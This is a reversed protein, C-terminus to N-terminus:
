VYEIKLLENLNNFTMKIGEEFGMKILIELNALSDLQLTANINTIGNNETFFNTWLSQPLKTDIIGNEDCFTDLCSIEKLPKIKKYDIKSWHKDNEPGVMAYLWRGGEKFDFTKTEVHYPKPAWWKDLNESKAWANWVSQINAAFKSVIDISNKERNVSLNFVLETKM